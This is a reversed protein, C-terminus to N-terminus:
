RRLANHAERRSPASRRCCSHASMLCGAWAFAALCRMVLVELLSSWHSSEPDSNAERQGREGSARRRGRGVLVASMTMLATV